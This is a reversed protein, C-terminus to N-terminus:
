NFLYKKTIPATDIKKTLTLQMVQLDNLFAQACGWLYIRYIRTFKEGMLKTIEVKKSMFNKHWELLTYYYHKRWVDIDSLILGAKEIEPMVESFSPCRGFPFIYRQIFENAPKPATNSGIYHIVAIGNEKLLSNIKKFYKNYNRSDQHEFQGISIIKSYTKDKIDKFDKVEFTIDANGLNKEKQKEKAVKTQEESLSVGHMPINHEEACKLIFTGNGCGIDLLSDEDTLRLKKKLFNIKEYQADDLTQYEPGGKDWYACSYMMSEGLMYKYVQSPIDYHFGISEKNRKRSDFSMLRRYISKTQSIFNNFFNVNGRGKNDLLITLFDELSGSSFTIDKSIIYEPIWKESHMVCKIESVNKSVNVELPKNKKPNGIIFKQNQHSILIFGDKKIVKSLFKPLFYM